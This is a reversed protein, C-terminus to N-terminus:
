IVSPALPATEAWYDEGTGDQFDLLPAMCDRGDNAFAITYALGTSPAVLTPYRNWIGKWNIFKRHLEFNTLLSQNILTEKAAAAKIPLKTQTALACCPDLLM